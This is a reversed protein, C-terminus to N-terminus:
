KVLAWFPICSFVSYFCWFSPTEPTSGLIIWTIAYTALFSSITITKAIGADYMFITVLCLVGYVLFTPQVEFDHFNFKWLLHGQPGRYTCSDGYNTDEIELGDEQFSFYFGGILILLLCTWVAFRFKLKGNQMSHYGAYSFALPQVWILLWACFTLIKNEIPCTSSRQDFDQVGAGWQVAQLLEMFGFVLASFTYVQWHRVHRSYAALGTTFHILAFFASVEATWCM